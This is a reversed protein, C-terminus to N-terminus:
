SEQPNPLGKIKSYDGGSAITLWYSQSLDMKQKRAVADDEPNIKTNSKKQKTTFKLLFDEIKATRKSRMCNFVEYAIQALYYEQRTVSSDEVERKQQLYIQWEVFESSTTEQQM